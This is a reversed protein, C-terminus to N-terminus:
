WGCRLLAEAECRLIDSPEVLYQLLETVLECTSSAYPEHYNLAMKEIYSTGRRHHDIVAVRNCTELLPESEVSGPRNTDVVVLLSGPQVRLFADSATVFTGAYEPQQQLKRIMPHAANNELDIVIQCKKGKKRAICCIGAAAGLSDMDAYAHGMVYVQRADEILEGLASAMVRSKVKTRKETIKSRGGYFEFNVKDKVVAQDGGRSLAMELALSANKFLAEYSEAERGVGISLTAAVGDGAVVERVSDLISFRTSAYNSFSREEFVFLYRDRDYGLLLGGTDATWRDLKEELAALLASRKNEPCAMMLDESNDIMVIAMVPRTLEVTQRMQEFETVDMWYTTALVSRSGPLEEHRGLGGFVRYQRHNWTVLEPSERKGELLWHTDFDPIVDDLHSEYLKDTLGSLQLFSDNSWLVAETDLDFVMMPLPAFLLNSSAASDRGGSVREMYQTLQQQAAGRRWRGIFYVLVAAAAEGIALPLSIPIAAAIFAVLCIAYLVSNTRLFRAMKRNLRTHRRQRRATIQM